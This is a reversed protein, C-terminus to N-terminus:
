RKSALTIADESREIAERAEDSNFPGGITYDAKVRQSHLWRLARGLERSKEFLPDSEPITPWSLRFALEDHVGTPKPPVRGLSPLAAHFAQARHYAAYYARGVVNRFEAEKTARSYLEKALQLLDNPSVSM